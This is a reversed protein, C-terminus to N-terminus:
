FPLKQEKDAFFRYFKLVRIVENVSSLYVNRADIKEILKAIVSHFTIIHDVGEQKMISISEKQLKDSAPLAPIVLINKFGEGHFFKKKELVYKGKLFEFIEPFRSLVVPTIKMTHWCVPKVVASSIVKTVEDGSLIFRDTAEPELLEANKVFLIDEKKLVFFNHIAFFEM